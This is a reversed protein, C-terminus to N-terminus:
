WSYCGKIHSVQFPWKILVTPSIAPISMGFADKGSSASGLLLFLPELTIGMEAVGGLAPKLPAFGGIILVTDQQGPM